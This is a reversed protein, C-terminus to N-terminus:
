VFILENNMTILIKEQTLQSELTERIFSQTSPVGFLGQEQKIVLFRHSVSYNM